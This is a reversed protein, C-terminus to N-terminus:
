NSGDHKEQWQRLRAEEIIDDEARELDERFKFFNYM